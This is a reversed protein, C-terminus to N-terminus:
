RTGRALVEPVDDMGDNQATISPPRVASVNIDRVNTLHQAIAGDRDIEVSLVSAKNGKREEVPEGIAAANGVESLHIM